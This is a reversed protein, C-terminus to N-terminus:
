KRKQVNMNHYSVSLLGFFYDMRLFLSDKGAMKNLHLFRTGYKYPICVHTFKQGSIVSNLELNRQQKLANPM